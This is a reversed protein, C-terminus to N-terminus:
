LSQRLIEIAEGTQDSELDKVHEESEDFPEIFFTYDERDLERELEEM